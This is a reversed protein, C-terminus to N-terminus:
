KNWFEKIESEDMDESELTIVFDDLQKVKEQNKIEVIQEVKSIEESISVDNNIKDNENQNNHELTQVTTQIINQEKNYINSKLITYEKMIKEYEHFDFLIFTPKGDRLIIAKDIDHNTVKDFISKSKRILETSSFMEDSSYLLYSM